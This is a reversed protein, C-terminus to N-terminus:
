YYVFFILTDKASTPSVVCGNMKSYSESIEPEITSSRRKLRIQQHQGYQVVKFKMYINQRISFMEAFMFMHLIELNLVM